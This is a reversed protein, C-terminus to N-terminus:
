ERHTRKETDPIERYVTGANANEICDVPHHVHALMPDDKAGIAGAFGGQQLGEDPVHRGGPALDSNEALLVASAIPSFKSFAYSDDARADRIKNM